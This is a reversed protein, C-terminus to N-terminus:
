SDIYAASSDVCPDGCYDVHGCGLLFLCMGFIVFIASILLFAASFSMASPILDIQPFRSNLAGEHAEAGELRHYQGQWDM